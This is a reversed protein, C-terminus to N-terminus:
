DLYAQIANKGRLLTAPALLPPLKKPVRVPAEANACRSLRDSDRAISQVSPVGKASAARPRRKAPTMLPVVPSPYEDHARGKRTAATPKFVAMTKTTIGAM